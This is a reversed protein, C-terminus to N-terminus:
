AYMRPSFGICLWPSDTSSSFYVLCGLQALTFRNVTNFPVTPMIHLLFTFAQHLFLPDYLHLRSFNFSPTRSNHHGSRTGSLPKASATFTFIFHTHSDLSLTPPQGSVIMRDDDSGADSIDHIHRKLIHGPRTVCRSLRRDTALGKIV